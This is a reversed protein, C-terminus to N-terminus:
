GAPPAPLLFGQEVLPRLWAPARERLAAPDEGLLSAIADLITGAPLTGDCSGAFGAGVTDMPRARMMGDRQRLLVHEPDEAGPAGIQEQAVGEALLYRRSLLAAPDAHDRLFDQREFHARVSEGLPQAVAHPWDEVLVSPTRTGSRRLTIWGFGVAHTRREAFETLWAAYAARYAAPDGRHAGADRLWLETYETVDQTERQVIWADCGPPVWAAVRERWDEGEVHQWNALLQCHGGEALHAASRTVLSRCLADGPLGADRYTLGPTPGTPRAPSIVFPPNSVILGFGPPETGDRPAPANGGTAGTVPDFLSGARLDAPPAASLALTLATMRLARTNVDTATVSGAHRTAHLAQVGCGTGLDLARAVPTRVTLAALTASAGGPGLVADRRGAAPGPDAGPVGAGHGDSVAYWDQGEANEYPRIEVTARLAGGDRELWGDALAADLPLAARAAPGEPVPLRLLFLRLLVALPDEGAGHLAHLAPATEGRALAARAPRGLLKLLGDPTFSAALLAERLRSTGDGPTPLGTLTM